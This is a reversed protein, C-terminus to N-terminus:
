QAFPEDPIMSAGSTTEGPKPEDWLTALAERPSPIPEDAMRYLSRILVVLGIVLLSPVLLFIARTGFVTALGGVTLTGAFGLGNALFSQAGFTSGQVSIPVRRNIYTQVAVTAAGSGFEVLIAIMGAAMVREGPHLGLHSLLHLPSYPAFTSAVQDILGFLIMAIGFLALSINALWREGPWRIFIPALLQGILAGIAGPAFIYIANAPDAGIVSRVYIPQLSDFVRSLVTVAAGVLIMTSVARNALMWAGVERFGALRRIRGTQVRRPRRDVDTGIVRYAALIFFAGAVYMVTRIDWHKILVPALLASGTATGIGSALGLLVTVTALEAASAVVAVAVKLAPNTIQSLISVAFILIFLPAIGTGVFRPIAFCIVAQAAFGLALAV